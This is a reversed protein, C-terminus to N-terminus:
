MIGEITIETDVCLFLGKMLMWLATVILMITQIIVGKLIGIDTQTTDVVLVKTQLDEESV